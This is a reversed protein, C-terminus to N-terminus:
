LNFFINKWSKVCMNCPTKIQDQHRTQGECHIAV